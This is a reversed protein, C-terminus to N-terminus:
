LAFIYVVIFFISISILTPLEAGTSDPTAVTNKKSISHRLSFLLVRLNLFQQFVPLLM